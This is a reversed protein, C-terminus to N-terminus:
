LKNELIKSVDKSNLECDADTINQPLFDMKYVDSAGFSANSTSSSVSALFYSEIEIYLETKGKGGIDLFSNMTGSIIFLPM